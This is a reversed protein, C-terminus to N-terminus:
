FSSHWKKLEKKRAPVQKHPGSLNLLNASNISTYSPNKFIKQIIYGSIACVKYGYM